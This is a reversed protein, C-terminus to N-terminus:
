APDEALHAAAAAFARAREEALEEGPGFKERDCYALVPALRAADPHGAAAELAALLEISTRRAAPLGHVEALDERLLGALAQAEAAFAEAGAPRGSALAALAERRRARGAARGASAVGLAERQQARQRLQRAALALVVVLPPLLWPWRAAPARLLPGAPFEPAGAEGEALTPAVRLLLSASEAELLPGSGDAARARLVLPGLQAEGAEFAHLRLTLLEGRRGGRRWESRELERVVLPALADADWAEAALDSRWSRRVLLEFGVGAEVEVVGDAGAAPADIRIEVPPEAPDAAPACAAALLLTAAVPSRM